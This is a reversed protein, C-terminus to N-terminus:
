VERYMFAFCWVQRGQLWIFKDRDYVNGEKDLCTYFGGHLRDPSHKVWFPLVNGLLEKKYLEAYASIGSPAHALETNKNQYM